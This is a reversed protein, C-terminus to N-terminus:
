SSARETSSAEENLSAGEYRHADEDIPLSWNWGGKYAIKNRLVKLKESARRLAKDKVRVKKAEEYIEAVLVPGNALTDELFSVAWDTETRDDNSTQATLADDATITVPETEWVLTPQNNENGIVSYALGTTSKALNNKAPMFLRREPNQNDKTVIYASRVAAIFALSGMPRYLASTNNGSNKNLHQILIIAVKRRSALKALPALLGRIDSNKHSDTGDLYASIPDIFILRCDQISDLLKDLALIDKKLSFISTVPNGGEDTDQVAQLIHIKSCDAGAADLRPRITDAPDDEASLLLAEGMLASDDSAPWKYGKSIAACMAATLLSKGLGPDGAILSLKGYAFREPWLWSISQSPIDSLRTTM